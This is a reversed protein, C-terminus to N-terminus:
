KPLTHRTACRSGYSFLNGCSAFHVRYSHEHRNRVITSQRLTDADANEQAVISHVLSM